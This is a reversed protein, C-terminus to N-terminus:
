TGQIGILIDDVVGPDFSLGVEEAPEQILHRLEATTFSLLVLGDRLLPELRGFKALEPTHDRRLTVALFYRQRPDDLLSAFAEILPDREPKTLKLLADFQDFAILTRRDENAPELLRALAPPDSLIKDAQREVWAQDRKDAAAVAQLLSILLNDGQPVTYYRWTESGQLDQRRAQGAQLMPLLLGHFLLRRGSGRDGVVTLLHDGALDQECEDLLRRWGLMRQSQLSSAQEFDYPYRDEDLTPVLLADFPLLHSDIDEQAIRYAFISWYTLIGQWHQRSRPDELQLGLRRARSAFSRVRKLLEESDAGQSQLELLRRHEQELEGPLEAYQERGNELSDASAPPTDVDVLDDRKISM